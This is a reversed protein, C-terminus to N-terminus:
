ECCDGTVLKDTLSHSPFNIEAPCYTVGSKVLAWVLKVSCNVSNVLSTKLGKSMLANQEKIKHRKEVRESYGTYDEQPSCLWSMKSVGLGPVKSENRM